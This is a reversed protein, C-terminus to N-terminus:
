IPVTHIVILKGDMDTCFYLNHDKSEGIRLKKRIEDVKIPFNRVIVNAGSVPKTKKFDAFPLVDVIRTIKGMFNEKLDEATYLHTNIHLKSLGYRTATLRFAGAKLLAADPEYLYNQPQDLKIEAQQEDSLNFTFSRKDINKEAASGSRSSTQHLAVATISLPSSIKGRKMRCLLEKCEGDVSVVQLEYLGPLLRIAEQIDMMPSLKLMLVASKEFFLPLHELINPECDELRFVKRTSKRRAPDVYILDLQDATCQQLYAMGDGAICELGKVGLISANHQVIKALEVDRECYVVSQATGAFAYSDVGFGGTLDLIRLGTPIISAKHDAAMESSSQEISLRKPYYIGEAGYWSPLKYRSRQWSDLQTALEAPAIGEFPSKALAMESPAKGAQERLFAQVEPQLILPNM